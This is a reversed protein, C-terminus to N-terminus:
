ALRRMEAGAQALWFRMDMERCMTTATTLHDEAEKRKGTRGYLTGLALHCRSLLPRMGLKDALALSQRYHGEAIGGNLSGTHVAIEGLLHLTWAEYGRQGRERALSLARGAFTVADDFRDSLLCAEGMQVVILTQFSEHAKQGEDLLTLGEAIRGSLAYVSGLWGATIPSLTPLNWDRCLALARELLPIAYSLDGRIRYVHALGWSTVIWSCPHDLGEAIRIGEKGHLMADDFAGSEALAWALYGRCMAAPFGALGCRDRLREGELLQVVKRLSTAAERYDGSTLCDAGVYFNAGVELPFDSLTGAVVQARQASTRAEASNGTMWLFHGMYVSVYGIRRQDALTLALTEAERLYAVVKQLEGLPFLSTRLDFRLDIAQELTERTEPLHQLAVLAQEFCAVAERNASRAFAKAGAQRLYSVAREWVESRFAHYALPELQDTLRDPYLTEIAEVIKAHLVRRRDHLLSGYAVDNILAHKFTYELDPFLRAEYLFEGAILLTLGTRLAEEPGETIAQLLSFPVDKGIVAAAQLLRKDEPSLRDIRSALIAQATAPILFTQFAKALRYAGREGALAKTEVLTRVSEELFFPNGGTREILLRKLPQLGPDNGLLGELLEDASEPPLTDIRLQRRQPPELKEWQPDEVPVDLLWLFAPLSPELARDLSLLKGTVKERIKRADDRPEIQFYTRLLDILPLFATAKGFSVSSSEVILWGQTRHSQIFEWV